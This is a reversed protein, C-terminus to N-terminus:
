NKLHGFMWPGDFFGGRVIRCRNRGCVLRSPHNRELPKSYFKENLKNLRKGGPFNKLWGM